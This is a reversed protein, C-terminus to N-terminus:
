VVEDFLALAAEAQACAGALREEPTMDQANVLVSEPDRYYARIARLHMRIVKLASILKDADSLAAEIVLDPDDDVNAPIRMIWRREGRRLSSVMLHALEISMKAQVIDIKMEM